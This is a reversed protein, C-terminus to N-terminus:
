RGEGAIGVWDSPEATTHEGLFLNLQSAHEQVHRMSYLQLELYSVPKGVFSSFDIQQRAREDSLEALTTRCKEHLQRLYTHLQDKSYPQHPFESAPDLENLTFPAPPAFGESSGTLYLDLWFLCHYTVCWFASTKDPQSRDVPDPWLHGDWHTAPCALLANELMEIAAGFQEWLATRWLSDLPLSESTM